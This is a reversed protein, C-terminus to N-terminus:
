PSSGPRTSFQIRHGISRDLTGDTLRVSAWAPRDLPDVAMPVFSAQGRAPDPITAGALAEETEGRPSRLTITMAAFGEALDTLRWAVRAIIWPHEGDLFGVTVLPAYHAAVVVWAARLPRDRPPSWLDSALPLDLLLDPTTIEQPGHVHPRYVFM